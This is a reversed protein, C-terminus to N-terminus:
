SIFFIILFYQKKQYIAKSRCREIQKACVDVVVYKGYTNDDSKAVCEINPKEIEIM